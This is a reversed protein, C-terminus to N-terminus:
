SETLVTPDRITDSYTNFLDLGPVIPLGNSIYIISKRGPLGALYTVVERLRDMTFALNHSEEEAYSLVDSYAESALPSFGSVSGQREIERMMRDVVDQRASDRLPRGGSVTRLGRLADLVPQPDSTLPQLVKLGQQESVVMMQVPPRLVRMVFGRVETLVRNRDLPHLNQNDVYIVIRVPEPELAPESAAQNAQAPVQAPVQPPDSHHRYVEETYVQFNTIRQLEGDQLVRFDSATLDTVPTGKKDTVTANINVVTLEYEDVFALGGIPRPRTQDDGAIATATAVVLIATWFALRKV